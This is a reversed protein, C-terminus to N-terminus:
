SGSLKHLDLLSDPLLEKVIEAFDMGLMKQSRRILIPAPHSPEYKNFYDLIQELMIIVDQQSRIKREESDRTDTKPNESSEKQQGHKPTSSFGIISTLISNLFHRLKYFDLHVGQTRLSAYNEIRELKQLSIEIQEKTPILGNESFFSNASEIINIFNFLKSKKNEDSKIPTLEDITLDSNPFIKSKKIERLCSSTALWSLGASYYGDTSEESHKEDPDEKSSLELDIKTLTRYLASFGEIHLNARMDWLAVRLDFFPTLLAESKKKITTWNINKININNNLPNNESDYESLLFEVESYTSNYDSDDSINSSVDETMEFRM